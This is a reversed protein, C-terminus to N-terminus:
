PKSELFVRHLLNCAVQMRYAASARADSIPALEKSLCHVADALVNETFAKGNLVSETARARTPIAAMGGFAVRADTTSGNDQPLHIAMCVSSIDDEFRKSVKHVAFLSDSAPLPIIIQRIFEGAQLSTKRYALFHDEIAIERLTSGAQLVLKANLALLLPPLDAIPSASGINGGITAQNRVQDSGFRLLLERAGPIRDGLIDIIESLTVAAGLKLCGEQVDIARLEAVEGLHIVTNIRLMQQNIELTMDTGGGLLRAQPNAAFLEALENVEVPQHFGATTARTQMLAFLQQAMGSSSHHESSTGSPPTASASTEHGNQQKHKSYASSRVSLAHLAAQRIPRYGTCRCLNGGLARNINGQLVQEPANQQYLAFLSMVFGPTCFGCQSGHESVMAAQVPHLNGGSALNEVTILQRAHLSGILTICSNVAAYQLSNRGDADRVPSAVVVTCAGCDGSACGEKTGTHQQHVRLWDLVTLDAPVDDLEILKQDHYFRIM